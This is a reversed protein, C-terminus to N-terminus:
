GGDPAGECFYESFNHLEGDKGMYHGNNDGGASEGRLMIIDRFNPEDEKRLSSYFSKILTQANQFKQSFLAMKYTGRAIFLSYVSIILSCVTVCMTVITMLELNSM